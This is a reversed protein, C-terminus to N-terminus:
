KNKVGYLVHGAAVKDSAEEINKHQDDFFIDANFSSLFLLFIMTFWMPVHFYLVRITENLIPLRPVDFLIGASATYVLLIISLIKIYKM